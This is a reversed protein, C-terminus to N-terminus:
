GSQDPKVATAQYQSIMAMLQHIDFPKALFDSAGAALLEDVTQQGSDGSLVVVPIASTEPLAALERIVQRGDTDPLRNDLLILNPPDEFAAALGRKGTRASRLTVGPSREILREVLHVNNADDDIYLVTFTM